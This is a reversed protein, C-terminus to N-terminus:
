KQNKQNREKEKRNKQKRIIILLKQEIQLGNFKEM